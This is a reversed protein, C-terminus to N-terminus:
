PQSKTRACPLSKSRSNMAGPCGGGRRILLASRTQCLTFRCRGESDKARTTVFHQPAVLNKSIRKNITNIFELFVFFNPRAGLLLGTRPLAVSAAGASMTACARCKRTPRSHAMGNSARQM